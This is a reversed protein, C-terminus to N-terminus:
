RSAPTSLHSTPIHVKCLYFVSFEVTSLTHQIKKFIVVNKHIIKISWGPWVLRNRSVTVIFNSLRSFCIGKREQINLRYILIFILWLFKPKVPYNKSNQSKKNHSGSFSSWFYWITFLTFLWNNALRANDCIACCADSVYVYNRLLSKIYFHNIKIIQPGCILKLRMYYYPTNRESSVENTTIHYFSLVM